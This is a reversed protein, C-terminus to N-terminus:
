FVHLIFQWQLSLFLLKSCTGTKTRFLCLFGCLTQIVCSYIFLKKIKRKLTFATFHGGSPPVIMTYGTNLFASIIKNKFASRRCIM